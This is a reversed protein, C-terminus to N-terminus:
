GTKEQAIKRQRLQVLLTEMQRALTEALAFCEPDGARAAAETRAATDCVGHAQIHGLSGKLMHALSALAQHDNRYLTDRICAPTEAHGQEAMDLLRNIASQRGSFSRTLAEWDILSTSGSGSQRSAADPEIASPQRLAHHLITAVLSESDVPKNLHQVMGAALSQAREEALARATLGVVPLNPALQHLRRTAEHGDMIPMQIDMLVLDLSEAGHTTVWDVAVQGNDAFVLSVGEPALMDELVFRNIETDEAVLIRLGNLRPLPRTETQPPAYLDPTMQTPAEESLPLPLRLVFSSGVGLRSQASLTGGMTQSLRQSIALGLGSGGFRRTTSSDAQEFASFLRAMHEETM